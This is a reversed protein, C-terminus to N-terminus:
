KQKCVRDRSASSEEAVSLIVLKMRESNYINPLENVDVLIVKAKRIGCSTILVPRPRM